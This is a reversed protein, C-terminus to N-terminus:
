TGPCDAVCKRTTSDAFLGPCDRRCEATLDYAFYGLPCTTVCMNTTIDAYADTM